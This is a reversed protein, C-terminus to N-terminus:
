TVDSADEPQGLTMKVRRENLRPDPTITVEVEGLIEALGEPSPDTDATFVVRTTGPLLGRIEFEWVGEAGEVPDSVRAITPDAAVATPPNTAEDIEVTEGLGNEVGAQVKIKQATSFTAM